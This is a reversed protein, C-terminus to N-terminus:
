ADLVEVLNGEPDRVFLIRTGTSTTQPESLTEVGEPLSAFFEDVDDVSLGLHAAGPQNLEPDTRTEGEPEYEVLEIRVGDADLHAFRASAGAVDVATAFADGSVTFRNVVDLGFSDRYFEVMRELDAVTLGVHHATLDSM